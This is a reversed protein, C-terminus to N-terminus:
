SNGNGWTAKFTIPNIIVVPIKKQLAYNITNSTGGTSGDWTALLYDAQSILYQNRRNMCDSTYRDTSVYHRNDCRALISKYEDKYSQPWRSDQDICPIAAELKIDYKAKLDIVIKACIQDAGMAMGTIFRCAKKQEIFKIIYLRIVNNLKICDPHNENTGFPLKQSRLGTFAVTSSIM